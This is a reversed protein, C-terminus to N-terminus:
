VPDYFHHRFRFPAFSFLTIDDEIISGQGPWLRITFEQDASKLVTDLALGLEQELYGRGLISQGIAANTIVGHTSTEYALSACAFVLTFMPVVGCVGRRVRAMM